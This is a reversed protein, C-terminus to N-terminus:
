GPLKIREPIDPAQAQLYQLVVKEPILYRGVEAQYVREALFVNELIDPSIVDSLAAELKALLEASASGRELLLRIDECALGIFGAKVTHVVLTSHFDFIRMLKLMSILSNAAADDEGRLILDMTRLSLLIMITQTSQMRTKYVEVGQRIGIDFRGLPTVAAKDLEEFIAKTATLNQSVSDRLESPFQNAPLSAINQRYFSHVRQLNPLNTPSLSMLVKNYSTAADEDFPGQSSIAKALDPFTLPEGAESIKVIENGVLQKGVIYSAFIVGALLVMAAVVLWFLIRRWPLLYPKERLTEDM